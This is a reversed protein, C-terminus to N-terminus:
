NGKGKKRLKSKLPCDDYSCTEKHKEIYGVLLM